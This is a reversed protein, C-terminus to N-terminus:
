RRWASSIKGSYMTIIMVMMVHVGVRGHLTEHLFHGKPSFINIILTIRIMIIYASLEAIELGSHLHWLLPV